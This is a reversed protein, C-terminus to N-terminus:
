WMNLPLDALTREVEEQDRKRKFKNFEEGRKLAAQRNAEIKAPAASSPSISVVFRALKHLNPFDIYKTQWFKEATDIQFVKKVDDAQVPIEDCMRLYKPWEDKFGQIIGEVKPLESQYRKFTKLREEFADTGM